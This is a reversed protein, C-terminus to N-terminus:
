VSYDVGRSIQNGQSDHLVTESTNVPEAALAETTDEFDRLDVERSRVNEGGQQYYGQQSQGQPLQGDPLGTQVEVNDVKIGQDNLQQKLQVMTTELIARVQANDTHFTATVGGNGNVSVKLSLEGLHEPNLKIIMESTNGRQLLKAQDVIQQPVNYTQQTSQPQQMEQTGQANSNQVSDLTQQFGFSQVNQTSGKDQSPMEGPQVVDFAAEGALQNGQQQGQSNTMSGQQNQQFGKADAMEEEPNVQVIEVDGVLDSLQSVAVTDDAQQATQATSEQPVAAAYVRQGALMELMQQNTNGSVNGQSQNQGQLQNVQQAQGQKGALLAEIPQQGYQQTQVNQAVNEGQLVTEGSDVPTMNEMAAALQADGQQMNQAQINANAQGQQAMGQQNQGQLQNLQLRADSRSYAALEAMPMNQIAEIASSETAAMEAAANEQVPANMAAAALNEGAKGDAPQANDEAKSDSKPKDAKGADKVAEEAAKDLKDAKDPQQSDAAKAEEAPAESDQSLKEANDTDAKVEDRGSSSDYRSSKQERSQQAQDLRQSFDSTSNTDVTRTTAKVSVSSVANGSGVSMLNVNSM